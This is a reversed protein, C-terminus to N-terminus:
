GESRRGVTFYVISGLINGLVIVFVWLLKPGRTTERKSLDVLAIVMLILQIIIIPLLVELNIDQIQM